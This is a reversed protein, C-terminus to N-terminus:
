SKLLPLLLYCYMVILDCLLSILSSLMAAASSSTAASVTYSYKTCHCKFYAHCSRYCHCNYYCCLLCSKKAPTNAAALSFATVSPYVPLPLPCSPLQMAIAIVELCQQMLMSSLKILIAIQLLPLLMSLPFTLTIQLVLLLQLFLVVPISAVINYAIM